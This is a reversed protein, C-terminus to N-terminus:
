QILDASIPKRAANKKKATKKATKKKATKKAKKTFAPNAKKTPLSEIKRPADVDFSPESPEPPKIEAEVSAEAVEGPANFPMKFSHLSRATYNIARSIASQKRNFTRFCPNEGFFRGPVIFARSLYRLTGGTELETDGMYLKGARGYEDEIIQSWGKCNPTYGLPIYCTDAACGMFMGQSSLVRESYDEASTSPDYPQLSRPFAIVVDFYESLEDKFSTYAELEYQSCIMTVSDGLKGGGVNKFSALLAENEKKANATFVIVYNM